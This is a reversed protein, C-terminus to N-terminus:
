GAPLHIYSIEQRDVINQIESSRSCSQLSLAICNRPLNNTSSHPQTCRLTALHRIPDDTIRAPRPCMIVIVPPRTAFM